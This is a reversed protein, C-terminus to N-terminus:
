AAPVAAAARLGAPCTFNIRAARCRLAQYANVLRGPPRPSYRIARTPGAPLGAQIVCDPLDARFLFKIAPFIKGNGM